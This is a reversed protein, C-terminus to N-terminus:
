EHNERIWSPNNKNTIKEIVEMNITMHPLINTLALKPFGELYNDRTFDGGRARCAKGSFPPFENPLSTYWFLDFAEKPSGTM